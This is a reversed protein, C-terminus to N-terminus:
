CPLLNAEGKIARDNVKLEIWIKTRDESLGMHVYSFLREEGDICLDHLAEVKERFARTNKIEEATM